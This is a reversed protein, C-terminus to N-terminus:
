EEAPEASQNGGFLRWKAPKSLNNINGKHAFKKSTVFLEPFWGKKSM